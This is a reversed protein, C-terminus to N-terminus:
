SPQRPEHIALAIAVRIPDWTHRYAQAGSKVQRETRPPSYASRDNNARLVMDFCPSSLKSPSNVFVRCARTHAPLSGRRGGHM